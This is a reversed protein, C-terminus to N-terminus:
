YYEAIANCTAALIHAWECRESKQRRLYLCCWFPMFAFQPLKTTNFPVKQPRPSSSEFGNKNWDGVCVRCFLNTTLMWDPQLTTQIVEFNLPKVLLFSRQLPLLVFPNFHLSAKEVHLFVVVYIFVCVCVDILFIVAVCVRLIIFHKNTQKFLFCGVHGRNKGNRYVESHTSLCIRSGMWEKKLLM